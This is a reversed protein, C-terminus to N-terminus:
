FNIIANIRQPDLKSHSFISSDSDGINQLLGALISAASDASDIDQNSAQENIKKITKKLQDDVVDQVNQEKPSAQKAVQKEQEQILAPNRYYENGNIHSINSM